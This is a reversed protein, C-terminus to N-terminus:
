DSGIVHIGLGGFGAPPDQQQNADHIQDAVHVAAVDGDCLRFDGFGEAEALSLHADNQGREGPGVRQPLDGRSPEPIAESRFFNQADDHRPPRRGGNSGTGGEAKRDSNPARKM